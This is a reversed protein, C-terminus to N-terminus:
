PASRPEIANCLYQVSEVIGFLASARLQVSTVATQLRTGSQEAVLADRLAIIIDPQRSGGSALGLGARRWGSFPLTRCVMTPISPIAGLHDALSLQKVSLWPETGVVNGFRPCPTLSRHDKGYLYRLM